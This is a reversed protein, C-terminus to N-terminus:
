VMLRICQYAYGTLELHLQGAVFAFNSILRKM